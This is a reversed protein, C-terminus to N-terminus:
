GAIAVSSGGNRATVRVAQLMYMPSEKPSWAAVERIVKFGKLRLLAELEALLGSIASVEVVVNQILPWHGESVGRLVELEASECDLKLLDIRPIDADSYADLFHSLRQVPVTVTSADKVLRDLMKQYFDGPLKKRLRDKEDPTFTSNGPANPYYTLVERGEKSGLACAHTEVGSAVDHLKLNKLLTAYNQPAPEFALIRAAPYKHRMYISFLGINAGVDIIFPADSLEAVDYCHDDYIEKYIFRAERESGAFCSFTDRLHVLQDAATPADVAAM